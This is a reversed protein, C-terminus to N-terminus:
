SLPPHARQLEGRATMLLAATYAHYLSPASSIGSPFLRAIDDALRLQM